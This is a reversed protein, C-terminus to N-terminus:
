VGARRSGRAARRTFYDGREAAQALAAAASACPMSALVSAAARKLATSQRWHWWSFAQLAHAAAAAVQEDGSRRMAGLMQLAVPFNLGFPRMERLPAALLSAARRDQTAIVAEIVALRVSREPSQLATAVARAAAPDDSRTLAMVAERRRRRDKGSVLPQLAALAAAGGLRGLLQIGTRCYEWVDSALLETLPPVAADGLGLVAGALREHRMGGEEASLAPLLTPVVTPGLRRCASQFWAAQAEDFDGIAAAANALARSGALKDLALRAASSRRADGEVSTPSLAQLVRETEGFDGADLLDEALATLDHATESIGIPSEEMLFLDILLTVSLTRVSDVSVSGLWGELQRPADLRLRHSRLEMERLQFAYDSSTYLKDAPGELIQELTSWASAVDTTKAVDEPQETRRSAMRLVRSRREPDPALTNLAAAMRGSARGEKAMSAALLTAIAEDDFADGIGRVAAAGLGSEASEEVAEMVLAPDLQTAARAINRLADSVQEQDSAEVEGVLREFATLITAAQAARRRGAELEREDDVAARVMAAIEDSSQAIQRLRERAGRSYGSGKGSLSQVLSSWVEDRQAAARNHRSTGAGGAKAEDEPAPRGPTETAALIAEYDIQVLELSKHGFDRWLRAPGGQQRVRDADFGLLQLFDAIQQETPAGAVRLSLIDHDHLLVAAEAMRRDVPLPEGRAYLGEPSVGIHLDPYAALVETALRLRETAGRTTPHDPTYMQRTRHAAMLARAFGSVDRVIAPPVSSPPAVSM